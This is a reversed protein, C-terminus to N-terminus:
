WKIYNKLVTFCSWLIFYERMEQKMNSIWNQVVKARGKMFGEIIEIAAWQIRDKELVVFVKTTYFIAEQWQKLLGVEINVKLCRASRGKNFVNQLCEKKLVHGIIEIANCTIRANELM